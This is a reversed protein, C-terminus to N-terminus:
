MDEEIILILLFKHMNFILEVVSKCEINAVHTIYVIKFYYM